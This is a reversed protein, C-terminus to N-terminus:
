SRPRRVLQWNKGSAVIEGQDIALEVVDGLPSRETFSYKPVLIFDLAVGDLFWADYDQPLTIGTLQRYFFDSARQRKSDYRPTESWHSAYGYAGTEGVLVPNWDPIIPTGFTSPRESRRDPVGPPALIVVRGREQVEKRILDRFLAIESPMYAPQVTTSSVNDRIYGIERELWLLSTMCCGALGVLAVMNRRERDMTKMRDALGHMALFAWPIVIGAALKRQFLMPFYPAILGMLAWCMMLNYLLDQRSYVQCLRIVGVFLVVWIGIPLWYSGTPNPAFIWGVVILGVPILLRYLRLDNPASRYLGYIGLAILPLLGAIFPRFDSMYTPTAARAAFVRDNQMVHVFWLMPPIAFAMMAVVRVLWDRTLLKQAILTALFALLVFGILLVDYSHINMLAALSLGGWVVPSWADRSLLVARFVLVMLCLSVVFLGNTLMSSFVMLEPQWVDNPLWGGTLKAFMQGRSSEVLRGFYQWFLFGIGGGLCTLTIALKAAFPKLKFDIFLQALIWVFLITFLTRGFISAGAIGLILALKGLVWFYLHITLGPQYEVAFRNDFLFHGDMSQRMWAAYVMHDDTNTVYGLYAGGSATGPAAVFFPLLCILALGIGLWAAFKRIVRADALSFEDSPTM